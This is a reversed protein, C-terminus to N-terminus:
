AFVRSDTQPIGDSVDFSAAADAMVSNKPADVGRGSAVLKVTEAVVTMVRGTVNVDVVVPPFVGYVTVHFKPSPETPEPVVAGWMKVVTWVKVTVSVTVSEDVGVCVAVLVLCTVTEVGAWSEALKVALGVLGCVPVGTVNVAM